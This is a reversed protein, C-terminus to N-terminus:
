VVDIQRSNKAKASKPLELKLIGNEYRASIGAEDIPENFNFSRNFSGYNFEKRLFNESEEKKETKHEASISLVGDNFNVKFDAKEYGPASVELSYGKETERVNVSPVYGAYDGSMLDHSLFNNFINELSPMMLDQRTLGNMPRTWKILSM